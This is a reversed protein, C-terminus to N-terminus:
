KLIKITIIFFFLVFFMFERDGVDGDEYGGIGFRGGGCGGRFGLRHPDSHSVSSAM